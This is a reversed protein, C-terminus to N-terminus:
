VRPKLYSGNISPAVTLVFSYSTDTVGLYFGKCEIEQGLALEPEDLYDYGVCIINSGFVVCGGVSSNLYEESTWLVETINLRVFFRWIHYNTAVLGRTVHNQEVSAVIGRVALNADRHLADQPYMHKVVLEQNLFFAGAVVLGVVIAVLIILSQKRM